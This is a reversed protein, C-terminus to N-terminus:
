HPAPVPSAASRLTPEPGRGKPELWHFLEDFPCGAKLIGKTKLNITRQGNPMTKRTRGEAVRPFAPKKRRLNSPLESDLLWLSPSPAGLNLQRARPRFLDARSGDIAITRMVELWDAPFSGSSRLRSLKELEPRWRSWAAFMCFCRHRAIPPSASTPPSPWDPSQCRRFFLSYIPLSALTILSTAIM